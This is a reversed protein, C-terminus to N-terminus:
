RRQKPTSYNASDVVAQAISAQVAARRVKSRMTQAPACSGCLAMVAVMFIGLVVAIAIPALAIFHFRQQTM